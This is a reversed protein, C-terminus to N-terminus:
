ETKGTQKIKNAYRALSYAFVVVGVIKIAAFSGNLMGSLFAKGSMAEQIVAIKVYRWLRNIPVFYLSLEFFRRDVM